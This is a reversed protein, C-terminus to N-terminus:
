SSSLYKPSFTIGRIRCAPKLFQSIRDALGTFAEGTGTARAGPPFALTIVASEGVGAEASQFRAHLCLLICFFMVLTPVASRTPNTM